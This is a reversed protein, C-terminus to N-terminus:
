RDTPSFDEALRDLFAVCDLASSFKEQLGSGLTAARARDEPSDSNSYFLVVPVKRFVENARMAEMVDFGTLGPMNIDLLVLWPLVGQGYSDDLYTLFSEGDAFTLFPRDIKSRGHCREVMMTDVEDDDVMVLPGLAITTVSTTGTMDTM